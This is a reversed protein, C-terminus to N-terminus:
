TNQSLAELATWLRKIVKMGERRPIGGYFFSSANFDQEPLYITAGPLGTLGTIWGETKATVGGEAPVLTVEFYKSATLIGRGWRGFVFDPKNVMVKVKNAGFWKLVVTKAQDITVCKIFIDKTTRGM